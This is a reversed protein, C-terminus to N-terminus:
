VDENREPSAWISILCTVHQGFCSCSIGISVGACMSCEGNQLIKQELLGSGLVEFWSGNHFIELEWSPHTFPFYCDIWRYQIDAFIYMCYIDELSDIYFM